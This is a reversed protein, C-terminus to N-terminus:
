SSLISSNLSWAMISASSFPPNLHIADVISITDAKVRFLSLLITIFETDIALVIVLLIHELHISHNIVQKNKEAKEELTFPSQVTLVVLVLM